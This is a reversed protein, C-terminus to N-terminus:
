IAQVQWGGRDINVALARDMSKGAIARLLHYLYKGNRKDPRDFFEKAMSLYIFRPAVDLACIKAARIKKIDDRRLSFQVGIDKNRFKLLFDIKHNHDLDASTELEAGAMRLSSILNSEIEKGFCIKKYRTKKM